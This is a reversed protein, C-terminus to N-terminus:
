PIPPGTLISDLEEATILQVDEPWRLGKSVIWDASWVWRKRGNDVYYVKQDEVSEGPRRVLCGAFSLKFAQNPIRESYASQQYSSDWPKRACMVLSEERGNAAGQAADLRATAKISELEQPTLKMLGSQQAYELDKEFNAAETLNEVNIFGAATLLNGLSNADFYYLHGIPIVAKWEERLLMSRYCAFNPTTLYAIGGPQLLRWVEAMTERPDTLHEIVEVLVCSDYNDKQLNADKLMTPHVRAGFRKEAYRAAYASCEVGEVDWGYRKAFGLFHGMACGVDLLKGVPVRNSLNYLIDSYIANILPEIEGDKEMTELYAGEFYDDPEIRFTRPNVYVLGCQTCQVIQYRWKKFILRTDTSGCINCAVREFPLTSDPISEISSSM